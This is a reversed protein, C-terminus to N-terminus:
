RRKRGLLVLGGVGVGIWLWPVTSCKKLQGTTIATYIQPLKTTIGTQNLSCWMQEPTVAIGKESQAAVAAADLGAELKDLGAKRAAADCTYDSYLARQVQVVRMADEASLSDNVVVKPYGLLPAFQNVLRELASEVGADFAYKGLPRPQGIEVHPLPLNQTPAFLDDLWSM